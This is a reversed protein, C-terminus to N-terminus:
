SARASSSGGELFFFGLVLPRLHFRFFILSSSLRRFVFILGHLLQLSFVKLFSSAIFMLLVGRPSAACDIGLVTSCDNTVILYHTLREARNFVQLQEAPNFEKSTRLPNVNESLLKESLYAYEETCGVALHQGVQGGTLGSSL